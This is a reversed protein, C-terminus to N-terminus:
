TWVLLLLDIDINEVFNKKWIKSYQLDIAILDILEYCITAVAPVPNEREREREREEFPMLDWFNMM